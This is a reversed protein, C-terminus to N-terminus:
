TFLGKKRLLHHYTIAFRHAEDRIEQLYLSGREKRSLVLPHARGPMYIQENKKALAIVPVGIGLNNLEKQAANMQTKGGDILILDPFDGSEKVMRTYRRRVIEGIGAPDDIGEVTKIRFRRYNKKDPKGERFRVLSGVVSTGSIHSIDFCDIILPPSDLGLIEQLELVKVQSGFHIAEINRIILDLLRKKAGIKPVTVIVKKGKTVALFEELSDTVEEPLVIESPIPNDSYYQVLFEEFFDPHYDFSYETKNGLTGQYVNFLMLQVTDAHIIYNIIDEDGEKIRTIDQRDSLRELARIQDRILLANEYEEVSARSSMKDRLTTLLIGTKGKLVLSANRVAEDYDVPSIQEICPASCTHIHYRLCARKPLKKCTRLRFTKRVVDRVHDREAASVFPGFFTGDGDARRAIRIAPFPESTLHIFAFQKADKLNINFR